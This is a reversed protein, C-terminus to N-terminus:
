RRAERIEDELRMFLEARVGTVVALRRLLSLAAPRTILGRRVGVLPISMTRIPVVGFRRAIRAGRREDMLVLSGKRAIALLQSEGLGIRHRGGIVIARSAELPELEVLGLVGRDLASRIRAQDLQEGSKGTGVVEGWVAPPILLAGLLAHAEELADAKALYIVTSADSLTGAGSM